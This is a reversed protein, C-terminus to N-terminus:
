LAAQQQLTLLDVGSDLEDPFTGNGRDPRLGLSPVLRPKTPFLDGVGRASEEVFFQCHLFIIRTPAGLPVMTVPQEPYKKDTKLICPSFTQFLANPPLIEM